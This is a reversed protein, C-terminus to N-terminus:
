NLVSNNLIQADELFKNHDNDFAKRTEVTINKSTDIINFIRTLDWDCEDFHTHLDIVSAEKNGSIHYCTPNQMQFKELYEYPDVGIERATCFCHAIDLCFGCKYNDRVYEIEEIVAGRYTKQMTRRSVYPKNEIVLRPPNLIKLQRVTEKIDGLKGSHMVMYQVDLTEAYKEAQELLYKNYEFNEADALNMNLISHPAHMTMKLNNKEKFEKWLPLFELTDPNMFLELYACDGNKYFELAADKITEFENSFIKFGLNLKGM